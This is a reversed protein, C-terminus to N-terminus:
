RLFVQEFKAMNETCTRCAHRSVTATHRTVNATASTSTTTTTSHVRPLSQTLQEDLRLVVVVVDVVPLQVTLHRLQQLMMMGRGALTWSVTM